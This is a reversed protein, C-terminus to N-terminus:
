QEYNKRKRPLCFIFKSGRGYESEVWIKGGHREIIRKSIALGLGTGGIKREKSGGLQQFKIFLKNIDEQRIGDGTDEVVVEITDDSKNTFSTITINGKETFRIANSILNLLVQQIKDFDFFILEISEELQTKACLGKSEIVTRQTRLAETIAENINNQRMQFAEKGYHLKEFRLVDNILRHLRDVNRKAITLFEKQEDNTDGASGDLVIALGEKISTLPTRLEHSVSSVFDSKLEDLERLQHNKIEIDQYLAVVEKNMKSLVEQQVEFKHLTKSLDINVQTLQKTRDRVRRELNLNMKSLSIEAQRRENILAALIIAVVSIIGLFAQLLILRESLAAMPFPSVNRVMGWAAFGVILAVAASVTRLRFRFGAWLLFPIVMYIFSIMFTSSFIDLFLIVCIGILLSFLIALEAAKKFSLRSLKNKWSMILPVFVIVSLAQALWWTICGTIFNDVTLQKFLYMTIPAITSPASSIFFAVIIFRFTDRAHDFIYSRKTLHRLVFVGALAQLTESISVFFSSIVTTKFAISPFFPAMSNSLLLGILIGPWIRYGLIMLFAFAIGTTPWIAIISTGKQPLLQLGLRAILYYVLAITVNALVKNTKFSSTLAAIRQNM